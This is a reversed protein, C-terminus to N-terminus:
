PRARQRDLTRQARLLDRELTVHHLAHMLSQSLQRYSDREITLDVIRDYVDEIPTDAPTPWPGAKFEFDIDAATLRWRPETPHPITASDMQRSRGSAQRDTGTLRKKK